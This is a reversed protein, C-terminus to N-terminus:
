PSSLRASLVEAAQIQLWQAHCRSLLLLHMTTAFGPQRETVALLVITLQLNVETIKSGWLLVLLPRRHPPLPHSGVDSGFVGRRLDAAFNRSGHSGRCDGEPLRIGGISVRQHVVRLLHVLEAPLMGAAVHVALQRPQLVRGLVVGRRAPM